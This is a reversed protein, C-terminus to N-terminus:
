VGQHVRNKRFLASQEQSISDDPCESMSHMRAPPKAATVLGNEPESLTLFVKKIEICNPYWLLIGPFTVVLSRLFSLKATIWKAFIRRIYPFNWVDFCIVNLLGTM